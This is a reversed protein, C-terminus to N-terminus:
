GQPSRDPGEPWGEAASPWHGGLDASLVFLQDWNKSSLFNKLM